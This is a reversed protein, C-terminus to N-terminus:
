VAGTRRARDRCGGHRRRLRARRNWGAPRRPDDGSEPGRRDPPQLAQCAIRLGARASAWRSSILRGAADHEYHEPEMDGSYDTRVLLGRSDFTTRAKETGDSFRVTVAGAESVALEMAGGRRVSEDTGHLVQRWAIAQGESDFGGEEHWAQRASQAESLPLSCGWLREHLM